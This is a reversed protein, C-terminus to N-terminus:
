RECLEYPLIFIAIAGASITLENVIIKYFGEQLIGGPATMIQESLPILYGQGQKIPLVSHHRFNVLRYGWGRGIRMIEILRTIEETLSAGLYTKNGMEDEMITISNSKDQKNSVTDAESVMQRIDKRIAEAEPPLEYSEM